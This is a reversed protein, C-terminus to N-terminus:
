FFRQLRQGYCFTAPKIELEILIIVIFFYLNKNIKYPNPTNTFASFGTQTSSQQLDFVFFVAKM